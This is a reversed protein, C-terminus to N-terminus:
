SAPSKKTLILQDLFLTIDFSDGFTEEASRLLESKKPFDPETGFSRVDDIVIANIKDRYKMLAQLEEAAPEAIDGCATEGRSYHGDLFLLVRELDQAALLTPLVELADGEIVQVNKKGTLFQKAAQALKPDLEVTYVKDFVSSCRAATIGRFTGAEVFVKANTKKRLRNIILFKTYSHPNSFSGRAILALDQLYGALGRGYLYLGRLM